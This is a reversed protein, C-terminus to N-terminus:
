RRAWTVGFDLRFTKTNDKPITPSFEIQYAGLYLSNFKFSNIGGAFNGSTLAFEVYARKNLSNTSYTIMSNTGSSSTGSPSGTVSGIPGSYVTSSNTFSVNADNRPSWNNTTTVESARLTCTYTVGSLTLNFVQDTDPAYCRLEYTVDLIENALITITTPFGGSDLILARSFCYQVGSINWGVGVESLNGAAQGTTFRWTKTYAGYYPASAATTPTQVIVSNTTAIQGFLATDTVSPPTNNTGVMCYVTTARNGMENLGSDTILNPFWDAVLRKENTEANTAEIKYYGALSLNLKPSPSQM